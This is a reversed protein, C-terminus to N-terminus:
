TLNCGVMVACLLRQLVMSPQWVEQGQEKSFDRTICCTRRETLDIAYRIAM